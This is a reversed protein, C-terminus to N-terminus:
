LLNSQNIEMESLYPGIKSWMELEPIPNLGFIEKYWKASKIRDKVFVEIHDIDEIFFGSM